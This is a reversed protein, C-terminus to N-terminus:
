REVDRRNVEQPSKGEITAFALRGLKHKRGPPCVRANAAGTSKTPDLSM